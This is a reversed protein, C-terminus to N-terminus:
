RVTAPQTGLEKGEHDYLTISTADEKSPWWALLWGQGITATVKLGDKTDIVARGVKPSVMGRFLRMPNSGDRDSRLGAGHPLFLRDGLQELGEARGSGTYGTRGGVNICLLQSQPGTFLALTMIGRQDVVSVETPAEPFNPPKEQRDGAEIMERCQAVAVETDAGPARPEASWSANANPNTPTWLVMTVAVAAVLATAPVAFRWWRRSPKTGIENLLAHKRAQLRMPDLQPIDPTINM